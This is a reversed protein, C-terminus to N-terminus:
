EKLSSLFGEVGQPAMALPPPTDASIIPQPATTGAKVKDLKKKKYRFSM